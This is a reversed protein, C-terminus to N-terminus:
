RLKSTKSQHNAQVPNIKIVKFETRRNLQHEEKTCKVGDKCHNLLQTEGFGKALLRSGDAGGNLLFLKASNARNESLLMNYSAKGRSDTHARLEINVYPMKKMFALVKNLEPEADKRITYKDFDYYINNLKVLYADEAKEVEFRVNFITSEKIGKTSLQGEQKLLFKDSDGRLVYDTEKELDFSFTGDEKSLVSKEEGKSKNVLYVRLGSIPDNTGNEVVKGAVVCIIEPKTEEKRSFHYIDDLGKGGVRNSTFLGTTNDSFFTIGFDDKPSNIPAKLNEPEDWEGKEGTASFIDLGGLTIHGKSAFFLKGDQRVYPFAEDEATNIKNGCNVPVTWKGDIKVSYYLDMGGFGGPMDSSFYLINGNPSLTPHQVSYKFNSNYPFPQTETWVGNKKESFYIEKRVIPNKVNRLEKKNVNGIRTFVLYQGDWSIAAPGNHYDKNIHSPLLSLKYNEGQPNEGVAQYIKMFSNGTWGSIKDKSKKENAAVFARDSSFLIGDNFIVPSFDSASSNLAEVNSIEVTKDPNDLWLRAADCSNAQTLALEAKKPVREGYMLYYHKAEEFKSNQKLVNAYYFYNVPDFNPFTIVKKYTQEAEQTRGVFRYCNALKEAVDLSPKKKILKEYIDIAYYYDLNDYYANAKELDNSKLKSPSLLYGSASIFLCIYFIKKFNM